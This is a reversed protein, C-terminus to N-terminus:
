ELHVSYPCIYTVHTKVTKGDFAYLPIRFEGPCKCAFHLADAQNEIEKQRWYGQEPGEVWVALDPAYGVYDALCEYGCSEGSANKPYEGKVLTNLLARAEQPLAEKNGM